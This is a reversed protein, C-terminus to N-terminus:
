LYRGYCEAGKQKAVEGRKIRNVAKANRQVVGDEQPMVVVKRRTM